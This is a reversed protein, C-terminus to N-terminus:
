RQELYQGHMCVYYKNCNKHASFNNDSCKGGMAEGGSPRATTTTKSPAKTTPKKTVVSSPPKTPKPEKLTTAQESVITPKATIPKAVTPKATAPKATAPKATTPKKTTM